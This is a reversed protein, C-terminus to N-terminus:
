GWAHGIREQETSVRDESGVNAYKIGRADHVDEDCPRGLVLVIENIRLVGSNGLTTSPGEDTPHGQDSGVHGDCDIGLCSCLWQDVPPPHDPRRQQGPADVQGGKAKSRRTSCPRTSRM